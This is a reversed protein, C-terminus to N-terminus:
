IGHQLVDAHMLLCWRDDEYGCDYGYGHFGRTTPRRPERQACLSPYARKEDPMRCRSLKGVRHMSARTAGGHLVASRLFHAADGFSTFEIKLFHNHLLKTKIKFFSLEADTQGDM